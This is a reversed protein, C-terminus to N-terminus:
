PRIPGRRVRAEVPEREGLPLGGGVAIVEDQHQFLPGWFCSLRLSRGAGSTADVQGHDLSGEAGIVKHAGNLDRLSEANTVVVHDVGPSPAM